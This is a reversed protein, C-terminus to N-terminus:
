SDAGAPALEIDHFRTLDVTRVGDTSIRLIDVFRGNFVLDEAEYDGVAHVSAAMTEDHGTVSVLIRFHSSALQASDLGYLPSNEDIHHILTWTLAFVPTSQRILPLDHIRIFSEGQANVETRVLSLMATAEVIRNHRENAVRLMLARKGEFRHIVARKSFVIRATPKSFRAFVLGTTIAVGVMGILIEVSSVLHGYSSAPSMVGYGVTAFTEISFFFYDSFVGERAGAVSGPLLWYLTGFALNVLVFVFVLAAFFQTWTLTLVLHYPDLLRALEHGHTLIQTDGVRVTRIRRLNPRGM